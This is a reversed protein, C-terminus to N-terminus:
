SAWQTIVAPGGELLHDDLPSAPGAGATWLPRGSSLDVAVLQPGNPQTLRTVRIMGCVAIQTGPTGRHVWRIEATRNDVGAEYEVTQGLTPYGRVSQMVTVTGRAFQVHAPPAQPYGPVQTPPDPLRTGTADDFFEEDGTSERTLRYTAHGSPGPPYVDVGVYRGPHERVREGDADFVAAGERQLVVVRAEPMALARASGGVNPVTTVILGTRASLMAGTGEGGSVRLLDPGLAQLRLAQDRHGTWAPLRVEATWPTIGRRTITANEGRFSASILDGNAAVTLADTDPLRTNRRDGSRLDFYHVDIGGGSRGGPAIGGDCRTLGGDVAALSCYSANVSAPDVVCLISGRSPRADCEAGMPLDTRWRVSGSAPDVAALTRRGVLRDDSSGGAQVVALLQGCMRMGTRTMDFSSGSRIEAPDLRWRATLPRSLDPPAPEEACAALNPDGAQSPPASRPEGGGCSTLAVSVTALLAALVLVGPPWRDMTFCNTPM